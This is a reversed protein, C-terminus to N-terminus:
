SGSTERRDRRQADWLEFGEPEPVSAILEERVKQLASIQLDLKRIEAEVKLRNRFGFASPRSYRHSVVVRGGFRIAVQDLASAIQRACVTTMPPTWPDLYAIAYYRDGSRSRGIGHVYNHVHGESPIPRSVPATCRIQIWKEGRPQLYFRIAASKYISPSMSRLPRVQARFAVHGESGPGYEKLAQWFGDLQHSGSFNWQFKICRNHPNYPKTRSM